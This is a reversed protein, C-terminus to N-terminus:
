EEGILRILAEAASSRPTIRCNYPIPYSLAGGTMEPVPSLKIVNGREDVPPNINSVSLILAIFIFLSDDSFYRGPCIRSAPFSLFLM